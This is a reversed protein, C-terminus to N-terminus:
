VVFGGKRAAQKTDLLSKTEKSCSVAALALCCVALLGFFKFYKM